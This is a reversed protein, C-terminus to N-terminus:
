HLQCVRDTVDQLFYSSLWNLRQIEALCKKYVILSLEYNRGCVCAIVNYTGIDYLIINM